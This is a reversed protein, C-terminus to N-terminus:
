EEFAISRPIDGQGQTVGGRHTRPWITLHHSVVTHPFILRYGGEHTIVHRSKISVEAGTAVSTM